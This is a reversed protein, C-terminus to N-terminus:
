LAFVDLAHRAPYGAGSHDLAGTNGSLDDEIVRPGSARGLLDRGLDELQGDLANPAHEPEGFDGLGRVSSLEARRSCGPLGAGCEVPWSTHVTGSIPRVAKELPCNSSSASFAPKSAITVPSWFKTVRCLRVRRLIATTTREVLVHGDIRAWGCVTCRATASAIGPASVEAVNAREGLDRRGGSGLSAQGRVVPLSDIKQRPSNGAAM